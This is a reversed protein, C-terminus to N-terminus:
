QSAKPCLSVRVPRVKALFEFWQCQGSLASQWLWAGSRSGPLRPALAAVDSWGVAYLMLFSDTILQIPM